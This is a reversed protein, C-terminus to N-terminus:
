REKDWTKISYVILEELSKYANNETIDEGFSVFYALPVTYKIEGLENTQLAQTHDQAIFTCDKGISFSHMGSVSCGSILGNKSNEMRMMASGTQDTTILGPFLDYGKNSFEQIRSLEEENIFILMLLAENSFCVWRIEHKLIEPFNDKYDATAGLLRREIIEKIKDQKIEM